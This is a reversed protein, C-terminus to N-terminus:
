TQLDRGSVRFEEYFGPLGRIVARSVGMCGVFRVKDPLSPFTLAM